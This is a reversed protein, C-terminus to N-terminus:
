SSSARPKKRRQRKDREEEEKERSMRAVSMAEGKAAAGTWGGNKELNTGRGRQLYIEV